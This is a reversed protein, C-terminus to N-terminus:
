KGHAKSDIYHIMSSEDRFSIGEFIYKRKVQNCEGHRCEVMLCPGFVYSVVTRRGENVMIARRWQLQM